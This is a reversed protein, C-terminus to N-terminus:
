GIVPKKSRAAFRKIASRIEQAKAPGIRAFTSNVIVARIREDTEAKELSRLIGRMTLIDGVLLKTRWDQPGEEPIPGTIDLILASNDRVKPSMTWATVVALLILLAVFSLVMRLLFKLFRKFM